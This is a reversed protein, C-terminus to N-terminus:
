LCLELGGLMVLLAGSVPVACRSWFAGAAHAGMRWGAELLVITAALNAGAAWLAPIGAVGAAVGMGGNNVALAAALPVCYLVGGPPRVSEEEPVGLRRLWDLLTWLGMLMLVLAGLRDAASSAFLNGAAQGLALSLWTVATTVGAIVVRGSCPLCYGRAGWAMALILTDLNSALAFLLLSLLFDM